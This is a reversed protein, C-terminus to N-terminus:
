TPAAPSRSRGASCGSRAGRLLLEPLRPRQRGGLPRQGLHPRRQAGRARRARRRADDVVAAFRRLLAAREGPPSRGGPPSRRTPRARDRRRHRRGVGPARRDGATRHGPQHRHVDDSMVAERIRSPAGLRHRRRRYAALEVDAMNVYHDVVEDGLAARAVTPRPSPRVRPAGDDLPVQPRGSTYANGVLEDELQAARQEIGHLGGALMAALALYPNVDAGPIRNEMRAGAGRGVLRVACTRNDLGWAITTPAFSRTPSGSTPTSTRRTSCRSTRPRRSCGPSSSTTSRRGSAAPGRGLVGARRGPRAALPPHPLLQGRARQVEGHVHDVQGHQAAIEKAANKYVAHNDATTLAEAYLFGIEHQGFNCEGKAGEVDLGADYMHNRITACCRSSGPPASSRTTSTTSTSPRLDRYGSDTRRRTRRTSRSSSWSPAPWRRGAASPSGTSSSRCSRARRSSSPPTTPGSWTASSWRPRRAPPDAAPDHREDLVFEM